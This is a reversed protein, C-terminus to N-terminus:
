HVKLEDKKDFIATNCNSNSTWSDTSETRIRLFLVRGRMCYSSNELV